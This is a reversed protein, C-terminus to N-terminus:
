FVPEKRALRFGLKLIEGLLGTHLIHLNSLMELLAALYM